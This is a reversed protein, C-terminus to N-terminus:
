VYTIIYMTCNVNYLVTAAIYLICHVFLVCVGHVIYLICHVNYLINPRRVYLLLELILTRCDYICHGAIM